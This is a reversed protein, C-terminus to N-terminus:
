VVVVCVVWCFGASVVVGVCDITVAVGVSFGLLALFMSISADITTSTTISTATKSKLFFQGGGRGLHALTGELPKMPEGCRNPDVDTMQPATPATLPGGMKSLAIKEINMVAVTDRDTKFGCKPCRLRRYGKEVLKSGCIPCTTSTGRPEVVIIPVGNKECQWDIWQELRGYSLILLSVKHEKPLKKLNNVLNTLDERAVTYQHRKALLVILRSVKKAWDDIINKAKSHFRSIRRKIGKRRLWANYRTSSYKKQLREALLKYHTAREVATEFRHEITSNGVVIEKENIDVALVGSPIYKAPKPVRKSVALIFKGDRFLLIADGSPYVDYRKDWGIIRLRYGGLLEVYGDKVRYSYKNTLWIRPAMARPMSGRGPNSLWSKAIAIAERYCDQAVKSPLGYREKFVKYLLIHAKGLSLARNEIVVRIAYNLAERYRRVLNMLEQKSDPEPSVRMKIALTLSGEDGSSM